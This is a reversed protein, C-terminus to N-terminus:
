DCKVDNAECFIGGGKKDCQKMIEAKAAMKSAGKATFTGYFNTKLYCAHQKAPQKNKANEKLKYVTDQLQAVARELHWVRDRLNTITTHPAHQPAVDIRFIDRPVGVNINIPNFALTTVSALIIAIWIVLPTKKSM